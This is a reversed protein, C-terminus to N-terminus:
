IKLVSKGLNGIAKKQDRLFGDEKRIEFGVCKGLKDLEKIEVSEVRSAGPSKRVWAVLKDLKEKEGQAIIEVSGDDKNMVSGVIGFRGATGKCNARFFVGQVRGKVIIKIRGLRRKWLRKSSEWIM